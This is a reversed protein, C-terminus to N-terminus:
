YYDFLDRLFQRVKYLPRRRANLRRGHLIGYEVLGVGTAYIPSAIPGSMGKLGEPAGVAVAKNFIREALDPLGETLAAGGTLVIGARIRDLLNEGALLDRTKALISGMQNEIIACLERRRVPIRNKKLAAIVEFTEEPDVDGAVAHGFRKKINEADFRSVGLGDAIARTIVDGGEAIVASFRISGERFVSIDTTGGGIDILACGLDKLEDNLVAMSSALSQLVIDCTKLGAQNVCHVINQAAAVAAVIVHVRLGLKSCRVDV